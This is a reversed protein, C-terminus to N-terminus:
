ILFHQLVLQLNRPPPSAVDTQTSVTSVESGINLVASISSTDVNTPQFGKDSNLGTVDHPQVLAKECDTARFAPENSEKKPSESPHCCSPPTEDDDEAAALGCCCCKAAAPAAPAPQIASSPCRCQLQPLGAFVVAASTLWVIVHLLVTRIWRM